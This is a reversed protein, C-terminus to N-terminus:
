HQQQHKTKSINMFHYNFVSGLYMLQSNYCVKLLTAQVDYPRVYAATSSSKTQQIPCVYIMQINKVHFIFSM